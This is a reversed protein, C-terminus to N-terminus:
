GIMKKFRFYIRNLLPQKQRYYTLYIEQDQKKIEDFISMGSTTSMQTKLGLGKIKYNFKKQRYFLYDDGCWIKMEEPIFFYNSKHLFILTGYGYNRYSAVEFSLKESEYQNISKEDIGFIGKKPSIQYAIEEIKEYDFIIDDNCLAIKNFSSHKVGLNWSSNVYLNKGPTIIKVKPMKNLIGIEKLSNNILIIEKVTKSEGLGKLLDETYDSKLLTPIIVSLSNM